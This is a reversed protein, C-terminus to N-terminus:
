AAEKRDTLVLLILAAALELSEDDGSPDGGDIVNRLQVRPDHRLDFVGRPEPWGDVDRLHRLEAVRAELRGFVPHANM